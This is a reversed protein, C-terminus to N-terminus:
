MVYSMSNGRSTNACIMAKKGDNIFFIFCASRMFPSRALYLLSFGCKGTIDNQNQHAVEWIWWTFHFYLVLRLLLSCKNLHALCLQKMFCSYIGYKSHNNLSYIIILVHNIIIENLSPFTKEARIRRPSLSETGMRTSVSQRRPLTVKTKYIKHALVFILLAAMSELSLNMVGRVQSM